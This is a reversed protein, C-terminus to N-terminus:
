MRTQGRLMWSLSIRREVLYCRERNHAIKSSFNEETGTKSATHSNRRAFQCRADEPISQRTVRRRSDIAGTITPIVKLLEAPNQFRRGPDKELLVELLVVVPQPVGELQELPLPAHQHQYMVEAPSGRFLGHGTVMEWLMVGLSYLDSRIDVGVGAFQEPSAFEPTGAFGGPMSIATQSNPENVAKALGLDIIKATVAGADEISVMINSPKIDRHVLGQKHVAALGAAVQTAIELALKVELRGSRRILNELTEGEVFEM